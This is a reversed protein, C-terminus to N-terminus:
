YNFCCYWCGTIEAVNTVECLKNLKDSNILEGKLVTM